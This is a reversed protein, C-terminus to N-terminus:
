QIPQVILNPNQARFQDLASGASSSGAALANTAGGATYGNQSMWDIDGQSVGAQLLQDPTVGNANFWNIKAQPSYTAWDAPLALADGGGAGDNETYYQTRLNNIAM